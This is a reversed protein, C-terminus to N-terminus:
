LTITSSSVDPDTDTFDPTGFPNTSPGSSKRIKMLSRASCVFDVTRCKQLHSHSIYILLTQVYNLMNKLM